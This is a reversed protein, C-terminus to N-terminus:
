EVTWVRNRLVIVGSRAAREDPSMALWEQLRELVYRTAFAIDLALAEAV